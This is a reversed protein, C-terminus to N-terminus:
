KIEADQLDIMIPSEALRKRLEKSRNLNKISNGIGEILENLYITGAIGLGFYGLYNGFNKIYLPNTNDSLNM